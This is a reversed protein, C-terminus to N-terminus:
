AKSLKPADVTAPRGQCKNKISMQAISKNKNKKTLLKAECHQKPAITEKLNQFMKTKDNNRNRRELFIMYFFVLHHNWTNKTDEGRGPSIIWKSSCIKWIPQSLWWCSFRPHSFWRRIVRNSDNPLWATASQNPVTGQVKCFDEASTTRYRPINRSLFEM